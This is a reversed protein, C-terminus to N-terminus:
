IAESIIQSCLPLLHNKVHIARYARCDDLSTCDTGSMSAVSSNLGECVLTNLLSVSCPPADARTIDLVLALRIRSALSLLEDEGISKAASLLGLSRWARDCIITCKNSFLMRELSIESEILRNVLLSIDSISKKEDFSHPCLYSLVYLDGANDYKALFPSLTAGHAAVERQMDSYRTGHRAAPLYLCLSLELGSGCLAIDSALYGLKDSYAFNFERDCLEEAEAAIKHAECLSMGSLLAQVNIHFDGGSYITLSCPENFYLSRSDDYMAFSYDIFQKEALSLAEACIGKPLNHDHFGNVKMLNALKTSFKELKNSNDKGLPFFPLSAVNRMYRVKSWLIHTNQQEHTDYWSM